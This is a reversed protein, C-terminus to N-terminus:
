AIRGPPTPKSTATRYWPLNQLITGHCIHSEEVTKLVSRGKPGKRCIGKDQGTRDVTHSLYLNRVTTWKYESWSGRNGEHRWQYRQWGSWGYTQSAETWLYGTFGFCVRRINTVASSASRKRQAAVSLFIASTVISQKIWRKILWFLCLRYIHFLKHKPPDKM